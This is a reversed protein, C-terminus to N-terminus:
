SKGEVIVKDLAAFQRTQARALDLQARTAQDLSSLSAALTSHVEFSRSALDRLQANLDANHKRCARDEEIHRTEIKDLKEVFSKVRDDQARTSEQFLTAQRANLEALQSAQRTSLEALQAAQRAGAEANQAAQRTSLEQLETGVKAALTTLTSIFLWVVLIVAGAAGLQALASIVAADIVLAAGTGM